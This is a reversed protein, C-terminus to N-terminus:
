LKGDQEFRKLADVLNVRDHKISDRPHTAQRAAHHEYLTISVPAHDFEVRYNLPEYKTLRGDDRRRESLEFKVGANLLYFEFDKAEIGVLELEIESFENATGALVSGVLWPSFQELRRM